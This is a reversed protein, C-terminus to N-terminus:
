WFRQQGDKGITFPRELKRSGDEVLWYLGNLLAANVRQPRESARFREAEAWQGDVHLFLTYHSGAKLHSRATVEGTDVSKQMPRSATLLVSGLPGRASLTQVAGGKHLIFPAGASQSTGKAFTSPRYLVDDGMASFTTQGNSVRAWAISKWVGGNFVDIYAFRSAEPNATLRVPVDFVDRYQDTVDRITTSALFRNPAEESDNLQLPLADRQISFTKRYIKAAHANGKASGIGQKNLLVPWAHNNDRHAWWPTFDAAVALGVSRAAYTTMNTIDECRGLGSRGMETFGQDTPHLYYREDFRVRQGVERSIWRWVEDATRQGRKGVTHPAYRRLLPTMWRDLPEQSGRYPLITELFTEYSARRHAPTRRWSAFAAKVHTILFDATVTQTDPVRRDRAFEITGHKRELAEIASRAEAFTDFSLPDFKIPAGGEDRLQTVIYGHAPMNAILFRMAGDVEAGEASAWALARRLEDANDGAEALADNLYQSDDAMASRSLLGAMALAACVLAISRSLRSQHTTM